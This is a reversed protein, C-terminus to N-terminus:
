EGNRYRHRGPGSHSRSHRWPTAPTNVAESIAHTPQHHLLWPAENRIGLCVDSSVVNRVKAPQRAPLWTFSIALIKVKDETMSRIEDWGMWGQLCSVFGLLKVQTTPTAQHVQQQKGVHKSTQWNFLQSTRFYDRLICMCKIYIYISEIYRWTVHIYFNYCFLISMLTCAFHKTPEM